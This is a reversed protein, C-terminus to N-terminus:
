IFAVYGGGEPHLLKIKDELEVREKASLREIRAPLFGRVTRREELLYTLDLLGEPPNLVMSKSQVNVQLVISPVFPVLCHEKRGIFRIELMSHMLAAVSPSCLEDPPVVGEVVGIPTQSSNLYCVCGVLDRIRYEEEALHSVATKIYVSYGKLAAAHIRTHIHQLALIFTNDIQKKGALVVIARPSRRNPNKIYIISNRQLTDNAFSLDSFEVKVEGKIGHPGLITGVESFGYTSPDLPDVKQLDIPVAVNLDSSGTQPDSLGEKSSKRNAADSGYATPVTTGRFVNMVVKAEEEQKVRQLTETMPDVKNKSFKEYKNKHSRRVHSPDSTVPNPALKM